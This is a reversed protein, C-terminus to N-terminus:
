LRYLGAANGGMVKRRTEPRLTAMTAEVRGLPDPYLCTPHPFDTEFLVNDEGVKDILGQLDGQSREFWLTAYWNDKFYQSPMKSLEAAQVPANEWLEYNAAKLIFPVWGTGSEVSVMKLKPYRDFIGAYITNIIMRANNMFLMAGGIAPKVYQNQSKWFYKGNFTMATISGAIHFHVPLELDSCVAWLPDWAPDALDPSGSDDPDSTMNVGRMGLGSVREAEQVCEDISWAPLVPMPLLRNGSWDQMEAMADNYIQICLRRLTPDAVANALNQGGLGISNPYVVAADIGAEDMFAIRAEPDYAAPHVQEIRWANQSEVCPYKVGEPSIAGGAGAFSFQKGDIVWLPRGEAAEEVRPVREEYGRPARKTWLDHAETMHTDADVVRHEDVLAV